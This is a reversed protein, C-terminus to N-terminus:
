FYETDSADKKLNDCLKHPNWREKSPDVALALSFSRLLIKILIKASFIKILRAPILFCM